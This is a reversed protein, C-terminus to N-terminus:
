LLVTLLITWFGLLFAGTRFLERTEGTPAILGGVALLGVLFIMVAIRSEAPTM